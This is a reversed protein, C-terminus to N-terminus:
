SLLWSRMKRKSTSYTWPYLSVMDCCSTCWTSLLLTCLLPFCWVFRCLFGGLTLVRTHMTLTVTAILTYPMDLLESTHTHTHTHTRTLPTEGSIDCQWCIEGTQKTWLRWGAYLYMYLMHMYLSHTLTTFCSQVEIGQGRNVIRRLRPGRICQLLRIFAWQRPGSRQQLRNLNDM